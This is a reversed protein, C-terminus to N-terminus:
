CRGDFPSKRKIINVEGTVKNIIILEKATTGIYTDFEAVIVKLGPLKEWKLEILPYRDDDIIDKKDKEPILSLIDRTSPVIIPLGYKEPIEITIGEWDYLHSKLPSKGLNLM